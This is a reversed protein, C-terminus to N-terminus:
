PTEDEIYHNAEKRTACEERQGDPGEVLFVEPHSVSVGNARQRTRTVRTRTIQWGPPTPRTM